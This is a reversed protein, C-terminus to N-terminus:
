RVAWLFAEYKSFLATSNWNCCGKSVTEACGSSSYKYHWCRLASRRLRRWCCRRRLGSRMWASCCAWLLKLSLVHPKLLFRLLLFVLYTTRRVDDYGRLSLCFCGHLFRKWLFQIACTSTPECCQRFAACFCGVLEWIDEGSCGLQM